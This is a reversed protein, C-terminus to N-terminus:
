EEEGKEFSDIIAKSREVLEQRENEGFGAKNTRSDISGYAFRIYDTRVFLSTLEDFAEPVMEYLFGGTIDDLKATIMKGTVSDFSENFRYRLYLRMIRQWRQAFTQDDVKSKMLKRFKNRTMYVNKMSSYSAKLIHIHRLIQQFKVVVLCFVFLMVVLFILIGLIIYNTGPMLLPSKPNRLNQENLKEALSLITISSLMVPFDSGQEVVEKAEIEEQTENPKIRCIKTLNFEKFKIEGTIWPIITICLNYNIGNRILSCQKVLCSETDVLFDEPALQLNLVEDNILSPSAFSFFDIPSRFSYQIQGSDGIFVDRPVMVQVPAEETDSSEEQSFVQLPILFLAILLFIRKM